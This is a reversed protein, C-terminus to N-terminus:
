RAAAPGAPSSARAARWRGRSGARWARPGGGRSFLPPAPPRVGRPPGAAAFPGGRRAGGGGA